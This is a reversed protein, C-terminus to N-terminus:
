VRKILEDKSDVTLTIEDDGVSAIQEPLIYRDAAFLGDADLRVYGENLLRERIEEPLENPHFAEALNNIISDRGKMDGPNIGATEPGPRSPDEDSYKFDDVVGIHRHHNDFVRMGVHIGQPLGEM